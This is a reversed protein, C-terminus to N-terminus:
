SDVLGSLNDHVRSRTKFRRETTASRQLLFFVACSVEFINESQMCGYFSWWLQPNYKDDMADDESFLELITWGWRLSDEHKLVRCM